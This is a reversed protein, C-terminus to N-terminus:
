SIMTFVARGQLENSSSGLIELAPLDNPGRIVLKETGAELYNLSGDVTVVRETNAIRATLDTVSSITAKTALENATLALDAKGALENTAFSLDAKSDLGAAITQIQDPDNGIKYAVKELTSMSAPPVGLVLEQIGVYTQGAADWLEIVDGRISTLNSLPDM